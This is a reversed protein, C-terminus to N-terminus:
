NMTWQGTQPGCVVWDVWPSQKPLNVCLAVQTTHKVKGALHLKPTLVVVVGTVLQQPIPFPCRKLSLHLSTNLKRHFCARSNSPLGSAAKCHSIAARTPLAPTSGRNLPVLPRKSAKKLGKQSSPLISTLAQCPHCQASQRLDTWGSRWPGDRHAAWGLSGLTMGGPLFAHLTHLKKKDWHPLCPGWLSSPQSHQSAPLSAPPPSSLLFSRVTTGAALSHQQWLPVLGIHSM